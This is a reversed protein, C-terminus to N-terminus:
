IVDFNLAKTPLRDICFGTVFIRDGDREVITYPKIWDPCKGTDKDQVNACVVSIGNEEFDKITDKFYQISNRGDAPNKPAYKDKSSIPDNNGITMVVEVNQNNKKFELYLDSMLDRSYVGCFLDGCNLLLINNQKRADESIKSLLESEARAEQHSDTLARIATTGKFNPKTMNPNFSVKM